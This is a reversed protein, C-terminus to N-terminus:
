VCFAREGIASVGDPIVVDKEEGYYNFLINKIIVFWNEDVMGPCLSFASDDIYEPDGLFQVSSLNYCKSFARRGIATVSAPVVVSRMSECEAFAEIGIATIGEPIVVHEEYGHYRVLLDGKIEFLAQEM